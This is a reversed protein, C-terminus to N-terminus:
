IKGNWHLLVTEFDIFCCCLYYMIHPFTSWEANIWLSFLDARVSTQSSYNTNTVAKHLFSTVVLEQGKKKRGSELSKHWCASLFCIFRPNLPESLCPWLTPRPNVICRLKRTADPLSPSAALPPALALDGGPAASSGSGERRRLLSFALYLFLLSMQCDPSGPKNSVNIDRPRTYHCGAPKM